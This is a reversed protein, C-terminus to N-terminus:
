KRLRYECPTLHFGNFQSAAASTYAGCDEIYVCEGIALDPLECSESIVDVSDCTPGYVVCSYTKGERENFPKIKPKAHDFMICNMSGYIGDNLTYNYTIAGTERNVRKRKAIM